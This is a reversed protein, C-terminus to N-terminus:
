CVVFLLCVGVFLSFCCVIFLLCRFMTLVVILWRVVLLLLLSCLCVVCPVCGEFEVLFCVVIWLLCYGVVGAFLYRVDCLM